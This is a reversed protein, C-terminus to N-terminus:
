ATLVDEGEVPEEEDLLGGLDVRARAEAMAAAVEAPAPRHLEGTRLFLLGLSPPVGTAAELARGYLGLQVLYRQAVAATSAATVRDTKFDVVHWGSADRYALDIAGHVPIGDWDWAFPLEFHVETATRLAEAIASGAFRDLLVSVDEILATMTAADLPRDAEDRAIAALDPERGHGYREEIARHAINGRLLALGDGMAFTVGLDFPLPAKLATVPTSSRLPIVRPREALPTLYDVEDAEDPPVVPRPAPRSPGREAGVIVAPRVEAHPLNGAQVAALATGLWGGGDDSGSLYVRDAARTAAVYFLRQHEAEEDSQDRELLYSYFGPRRRSSEEDEPTLTVSLGQAPRWRVADWSPRPETMAEPVFVVPFELGKAGHITMLQVADTLDLVAPGERMDLDDRRQELYTVVDAITHGALERVIRVLKRINATAQEGGELAVWTAEVATEQLAAELVADVPARSALVRLRELVDRAHACRERDPLAPDSTSAHLGDWLTRGRRAITLLTDDGLAFLPSRLVGMLAIQDEPEALWRLLNSLDLVESRRYFGTGSPTAYPVHRAELAQEFVHVNTFRRLLVAIDRAQVPRFEGARKDWIPMRTALLHAIEAAVASAETPCAAAQTVREGDVDVEAVPILVLHPAPPSAGRGTMHVDNAAGDGAFIPTFLANFSDVLEDHSRFSRSLPLVQGGRGRVEDHLATFQAVDAGRFRYISQKADGVLFLWPRAGDDGGLLLEILEAQIPSVDQAEDVMLHRFRRRVDAAVTAHDRLLAVASTELDLFDLAHQERKAAEYRSCADEFLDELGALVDLATEDHGNWRPILLAEDVVARLSRMAEKADSGPPDRRGVRLNMAERAAAARDLWAGPAEYAEILADIVDGQRDFIGPRLSRLDALIGDVATEAALLRGAAAQEIRDRITAAWQERDGLAAFARRVDDRAQVMRPLMAGVHWPGLGGLTATRADSAEAAADIATRAAVQRLLEAEDEALVAAGPDIAAEVPYERLTRLCFSHITGIVAEDLDHRHHALEPRTMVARRVRDRMEAAAADTFTMAAIEPIGCRDLLRIYREVLVHTKGTGAGATVAIDIDRADLIAEQESTLNM